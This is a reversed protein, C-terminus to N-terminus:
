HGKNMPGKDADFSFGEFAKQMVSSLPTAAVPTDKVIEKTFVPDFNSSDSESTVQPKFPPKIQKKLVKDWEVLNWLPHRRIEDGDEPGSGLRKIPDRELLQTM